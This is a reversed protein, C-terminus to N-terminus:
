LGIIENDNDDLGKLDGAHVPTEIKEGNLRGHDRGILNGCKGAWRGGADPPEVRLDMGRDAPLGVAM